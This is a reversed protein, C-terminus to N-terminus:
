VVSKRDVRLFPVQGDDAAAARRASVQSKLPLTHLLQQGFEFDFVGTHLLRHQLREAVDRRSVEEVTSEIRGRLQSTNHFSRWPIESRLREVARTHKRNARRSVRGKEVILATIWRTVAADTMTSVSEPARSRPRM